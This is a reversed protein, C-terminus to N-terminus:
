GFTKRVRVYFMRGFRSNRSEIFTPTTVDRPGPYITRSHKFPRATFNGIEGRISLDSRPKYEAFVTVYTYLEDTDIENFRYYSERWRGFMDFGWTTKLRPLGQTFHVEWDVPHLGSIEREEGTTPDTVKSKHWTSQAQLQGRALGLRDTPLTLVLAIDDRTGDGINCPADFVGTAGVPLDLRCAEEFIPARDIVDTLKRHRYTAGIQGGNWFRHEYAVEYVLDQQPSLDPNGSRVGGTSIQSSSAVFDSFRLQGVEREVRVRFQNNADPSWTVQARPKAFRFSNSLEADGSSSIRSFEYRLGAEVTVSPAARWTVTAFGEGRREEVRVNAAPLAIAVGNEAYNTQGNLWNFAGEGGLEVSLDDSFRHKFIGRAISEGTTKYLAFDANFDPSTFHDTVDEKGLRQVLFLEMSSTAGLPRNYRLGGEGTTVKDRFTDQQLSVTPFDYRDDARYKFPNYQAFANLRLRGGWLPAEVAGTLNGRFADGQSEQFARALVTGDPARRILPGDGAGDDIGWGALLGAEWNLQGSRGSGELRFSPKTRGDDPVYNLAAAATVRLGGDSKRVVNAIVSKGQMDIGPAGGRIVDVRAVQTASIRRLIDQLTDDKSAPRAGDILVNGAAGAFGRVNDGQDFAFGPLRMIMDFATTPQSGAFFEPPYSTVGQTAEASAEAAPPPAGVEGPQAVALAAAMAIGYSL